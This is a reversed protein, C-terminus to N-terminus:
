ESVPRPQYTEQRLAVLKARYAHVDVQFVHLDARRKGHQAGDVPRAQLSDHEVQLVALRALLREREPELEEVM